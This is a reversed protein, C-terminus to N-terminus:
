RLVQGILEFSRRCDERTTKGPSIPLYMVRGSMETAVSWVDCSHVCRCNRYEEQLHMPKFSHRAEIGNARLYSVVSDVVGYPGTERKYPIVQKVEAVPIGARRMERELLVEPALPLKLDYVWPSERPPMRWEDPCYKDYWGEIRRREQVTGPPKGLVSRQQWIGCKELSALLLEAHANSMRHNWGRPVHMFDHAETFGLCRLQRALKAHEPDRFWVAGGEEGAVIKNKFFSTCMVDTKPHVPVGHAEASDEIVYWDKASAVSSIADMNCRRGYVHVAMVASVGNLGQLLGPDLNLNEKCDVFVPVMGAMSVARACAIMTFDPVAILSGLPLQLSEIGLHLAATGSACVAMGNPDLNCFNAWEVELRQYPEM